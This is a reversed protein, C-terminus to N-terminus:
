PHGDPDFTNCRDGGHGAPLRCGDKLKCREPEPAADKAKLARAAKCNEQCYVDQAEGRTSYVKYHGKDDCAICKM